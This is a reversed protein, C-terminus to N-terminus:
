LDIYTYYLVIIDTTIASSHTNNLELEMICVNDPTTYAKRIIPILQTRVVNGSQATYLVDVGNFSIARRGNLTGFNRTLLVTSNANVTIPGDSAIINDHTGEKFVAGEKFLGLVYERLDSKSKDDNFGYPM